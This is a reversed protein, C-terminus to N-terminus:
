LRERETKIEIATKQVSGTLTSHQYDVPGCQVACSRRERERKRAVVEGYDV